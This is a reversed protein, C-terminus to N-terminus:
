EMGKAKLVRERAAVWPHPDFHPFNCGKGRTDCNQGHYHLGAKRRGRQIRRTNINAM